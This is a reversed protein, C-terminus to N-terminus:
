YLSIKIILQDTYITTYLFYFFCCSMSIDSCTLLSNQQASAVFLSFMVHDFKWKQNAMWEMHPCSGLVKLFYFKQSSNSYCKKCAVHGRSVWAVTDFFRITDNIWALLQHLVFSPVLPVPCFHWWGTWPSM